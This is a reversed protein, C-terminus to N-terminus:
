RTTGPTLTLGGRREVYEQFVRADTIIGQEELRAAVSEVTDTAEVTFRVPTDSTNSPNIQRMAWMGVGFVIVLMVAIVAGGGFVVYKLGAGRGPPREFEDDYLEAPDDWPDESWDDVLGRSRRSV